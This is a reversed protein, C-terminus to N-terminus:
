KRSLIKLKFKRVVKHIELHHIEQPLEVLQTQNAKVIKNYFWSTAIITIEIILLISNTNNNNTKSDKTESVTSVVM